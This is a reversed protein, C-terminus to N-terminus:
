YNAPPDSAPFSDQVTKDIEKESKNQMIEKDSPIGCEHKSKGFLKCFFNKM